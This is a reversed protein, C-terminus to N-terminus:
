LFFNEIRKTLQRPPFFHLFSFATLFWGIYSLTSNQIQKLTEQKDIIITVTEKFNPLLAMFLIILGCFIGIISIYFNTTWWHNIKKNLRIPLGLLLCVIITLTSLVIAIIPQIIFLGFLGDIGFENDFLAFFMYICFIVIFTFAIQFVFTLKATINNM